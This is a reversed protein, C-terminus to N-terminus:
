ARSENERVCTASLAQPVPWFKETVLRLNEESFQTVGRDVERMRTRTTTAKEGTKRDVSELEYMERKVMTGEVAWPPVADKYMVGKEREAMEIMEGATKKHLQKTTFLSRAFASVSNRVADGRCRWLLNNLAEEVTPVNFVRADFHPLPLDAFDRVAPNPKEALAACLHRYFHVSCFGAALSAIKHVRGNFSSISSPFVLTIEDSQTYALTASPFNSLLDACTRIMATHLRSDFPKTFRSTFTSFAHGDLRLIAPQTPSLHPSTTPIESFKM